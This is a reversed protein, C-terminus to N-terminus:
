RYSVHNAFGTLMSKDSPGGPFGGDTHISPEASARTTTNTDTSSVEDIREVVVEQKVKHVVPDVIYEEVLLKVIPVPAQVKETPAQVEETPAQVEEISTQVKETPTHVDEVTSVRLGQCRPACFEVNQETM